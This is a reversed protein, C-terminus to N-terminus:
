RCYEISVMCLLVVDAFSLQRLVFVQMEVDGAIPPSADGTRVTARLLKANGRLHECMGGKLIFVATACKARM